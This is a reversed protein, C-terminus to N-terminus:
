FCSRFFIEQVRALAFVPGVHVRVFINTKHRSTNHKGMGFAPIEYPDEKGLQKSALRRVDLCRIVAHLSKFM